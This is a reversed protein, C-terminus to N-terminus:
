PDLRHTAALKWNNLWDRDQALNEFMAKYRAALAADAIGYRDVLIAQAENDWEGKDLYEHCNKLTAAGNVTTTEECVKRIKEYPYTTM